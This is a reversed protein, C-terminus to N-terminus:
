LCVFLLLSVQSCKLLFNYLIVYCFLNENLEMILKLPQQLSQFYRMLVFAVIFKVPNFFNRLMNKTCLIGRLNGIHVM